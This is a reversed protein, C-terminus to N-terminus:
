SYSSIKKEIEKFIVPHEEILEELDEKKLQLLKVEDLATITANRPNNSVLGLEGFFDGQDKIVPPYPDLNIDVRGLEIIYMSDAEDGKEFIVKKAPLLVVELKENIKGIASIPLQAFIPIETITELSILFNRKQMEEYYASGM